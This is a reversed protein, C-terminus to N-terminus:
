KVDYSMERSEDAEYEEDSAEPDEEAMAAQLAALDEASFQDANDRLFNASMNYSAMAEEAMLQRALAESEEMERHTRQEDTEETRSAEHRHIQIDGHYQPFSSDCENKENSENVHLNDRKNGSDPMVNLDAADRDDRSFDHNMPTDSPEMQIPSFHFSSGHEDDDRRDVRDNESHFLSGSTPTTLFKPSLDGVGDKRVNTAFSTNLAQEFAHIRRSPSENM